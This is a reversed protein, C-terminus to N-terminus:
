RAAVGVAALKWRWWPGAEGGDVGGTATARGAPCRRGNWSARQSIADGALGVGALGRGEGTKRRQSTVVMRAGDDEMGRGEEAVRARAPLPMGGTQLSLGLIAWVDAVCAVAVTVGDTVWVSGAWAEERKGQVRRVHVVSVPALGCCLVRRWGM